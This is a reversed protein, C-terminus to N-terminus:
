VEKLLIWVQPLWGGGGGGKGFFFVCVCLLQCFVDRGGVVPGGRWHFWLRASVHM